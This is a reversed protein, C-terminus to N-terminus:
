EPACIYEACAMNNARCSCVKRKSGSARSGSAAADEEPAASGMFALAEAAEQGDQSTQPEM